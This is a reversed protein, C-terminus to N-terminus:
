IMVTVNPTRCLGKTHLMTSFPNKDSARCLAVCAERGFCRLFLTGRLMKRLFPPPSPPDWRSKPSTASKANPTPRPNKSEPQSVCVQCMASVCGVCGRSLKPRKCVGRDCVIQGCLNGSVNWHVSSSVNLLVCLVYQFGFTTFESLCQNLFVITCGFM